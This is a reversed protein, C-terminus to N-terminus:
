RVRLATGFLRQMEERTVNGGARSGSAATSEGSTRCNPRVPEAVREVKPADGDDARRSMM